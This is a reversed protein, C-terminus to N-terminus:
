QMIDARNNLCHLNKKKENMTNKMELSESTEKYKWDRKKSPTGSKMSSDTNEQLENLNKIIAIKFERDNLNYIDIGEPNTVPYKYNEKQDPSKIYKKM